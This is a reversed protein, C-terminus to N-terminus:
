GSMKSCTVAHRAKSWTVWGKWRARPISSRIFRKAEWGTVREMQGPLFFAPPSYSVGGPAVDWRKVALSKLNIEAKRALRKRAMYRYAALTWKRRNGATSTSIPSVDSEM